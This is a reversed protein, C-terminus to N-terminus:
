IAGPDSDLEPIEKRPCVKLSLDSWDGSRSLTVWDGFVVYCQTAEVANEHLMTM